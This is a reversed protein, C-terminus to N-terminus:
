WFRDAPSTTCYIPCERSYTVYLSQTKLTHYQYNKEATPANWKVLIPIIPQNYGFMSVSIDISRLFKGWWYAKQKPNDTEFASSFRCFAHQQVAPCLTRKITSPAVDKNSRMHTAKGWYSWIIQKWVLKFVFANMLYVWKVSLVNESM